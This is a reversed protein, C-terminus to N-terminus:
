ERALKSRAGERGDRSGYSTIEERRDFWTSGIGVGPGLLHARVRAQPRSLPRHGRASDKRTQKPYDCITVQRNSDLTGQIQKQAEPPCYQDKGAIHLM